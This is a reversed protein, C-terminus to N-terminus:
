NGLQLEIFFTTGKNEESEVWIIGEHADVYSQVEELGLGIGLIGKPNKAQDKHSSILFNPLMSNPIGIGNDKVKVILSGQKSRTLQVSVQGESITFKVANSILTNLAYYMKDRDINLMLEDWDSMFNMKIKKLAAKARNNQVVENAFAVIDTEELNLTGFNSGVIEKDLLDKVLELLKESGSKILELMETREDEELSDDELLITILGMIGSLPNKFDHSLMRMLKHKKQNAESLEIEREKLIKLQEETEEKLVKLMLHNRVRSILEDKDFPKNVFDLGGAEFAKVKDVSENSSSLFIIPIDKHESMRLANGVELGSMKPMMIDLLILDPVVEEIKKLAEDGDYSKEVRFGESQLVHSLLLVNQKSDDVVLILFDLPNVENQAM